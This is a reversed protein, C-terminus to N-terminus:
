KQYFHSDNRKNVLTCIESYVPNLMFNAFHQVFDFNHGCFGQRFLKLKFNFCNNAVCIMYEIFLSSPSVGRSMEDRSLFFFWSSRLKFDYLIFFFFVSLRPCQCNYISKLVHMHVCFTM